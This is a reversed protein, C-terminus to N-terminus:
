RMLWRKLAVNKSTVIVSNKDLSYDGEVLRINEYCGISYDIDFHIKEGKASYLHEFTLLFNAFRHRKLITQRREHSIIGYQYIASLIDNLALQFQEKLVTLPVEEVDVENLPEFTGQVINFNVVRLYMFLTDSKVQYAIESPLYGQVENLLKNM